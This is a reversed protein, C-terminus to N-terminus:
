VFWRHFTKWGILVLKAVIRMVRHRLCVFDNEHVVFNNWYHESSKLNRQIWERRQELWVVQHLDFSEKFWLWSVFSNFLVDACVHISDGGVDNAILESETLEKLLFVYFKEGKIATMSSAFRFWNSDLHCFICFCKLLHCFTKKKRMFDAWSCISKEHADDINNRAFKIIKLIKSRRKICWQILSKDGKM